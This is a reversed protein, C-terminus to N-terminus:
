DNRMSHMLTESLSRSLIIHLYRYAYLAYFQLILKWFM